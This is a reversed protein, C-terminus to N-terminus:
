KPLEQLFKTLEKSPDEAPPKNTKWGRLSAYLGYLSAQTNGEAKKAAM